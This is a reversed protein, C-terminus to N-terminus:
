RRGVGLVCKANSILLVIALMGERNEVFSLGFKIVEVRRSKEVATEGRM